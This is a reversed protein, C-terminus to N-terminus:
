AGPDAVGGGDKGVAVPSDGGLGLNGSTRTLGDVLVRVEEFLAEEVVLVLEVVQAALISRQPLLEVGGVALEGGRQGRQGFTQGTQGDRGLGHADTQALDLFQQRRQQGRLLNGVMRRQAAPRLSGGRLGAVDEVL